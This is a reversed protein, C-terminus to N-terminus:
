EAVKKRNNLRSLENIVHGIFIDPEYYREIAISKLNNIIFDAEIKVSEKYEKEFEEQKNM